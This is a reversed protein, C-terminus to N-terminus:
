GHDILVVTARDPHPDGGESLDSGEITQRPPILPVVIHRRIVRSSWPWRRRILTMAFARWSTGSAPGDSTTSEVCRLSAGLVPDSVEGACSM